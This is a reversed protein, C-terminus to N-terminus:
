WPHLAAASVRKRAALFRYARVSKKQPRSGLPEIAAITIPHQLVCYLVADDISVVLFASISSEVVAWIDNPANIMRRFSAYLLYVGLSVHFAVIAMVWLYSGVSSKSIRSEGTEADTYRLKRVIYVGGVSELIERILTLVIILMGFALNLWGNALGLWRVFFVCAGVRTLGQLAM